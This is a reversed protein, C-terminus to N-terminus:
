VVAPWLVAVAHCLRIEGHAKQWISADENNNLAATPHFGWTEFALSNESSPFQGLAGPSVISPRMCSRQYLLRGRQLRGPNSDSRSCTMMWVSEIRDRRFATRDIFLYLTIIIFVNCLICTWAENGSEACFLASCFVSILRNEDFTLIHPLKDM